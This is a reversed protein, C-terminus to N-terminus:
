AEEQLFIRDVAALEARSAGLRAARQLWRVYQGEAYAVVATDEPYRLTRYCRVLEQAWNQAETIAQKKTIRKGM